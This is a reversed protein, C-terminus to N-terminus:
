EAEARTSMKQGWIFNRRKDLFTWNKEKVASNENRKGVKRLYELIKYM